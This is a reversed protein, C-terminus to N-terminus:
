ESVEKILEKAKILAKIKENTKELVNAWPASIVMVEEDDLEAPALSFFSENKFLQYLMSNFGKGYKKIQDIDLIKESPLKIGIFETHEKTNAEYDNKDDLEPHHEKFHKYLDTRYNTKENCIKCNFLIPKSIVKCAEKIKGDPRYCNKLAIDMLKKRISDKYPNRAEFGMGILGDIIKLIDGLKQDRNSEEAKQLHFIFLEHLCSGMKLIKKTIGQKDTVETLELLNKSTFLPIIDSELDVSEYDFDNIINDLIIEEKQTLFFRLIYNQLWRYPLLIRKKMNFTDYDLLVRQNDIDYLNTTLETEFQRFFICSSCLEIETNTLPDTWKYFRRRRENCGVCKKPEVLEIEVGNSEVVM